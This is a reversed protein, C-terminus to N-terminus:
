KSSGAAIREMTTNLCTCVRALINGGAAYVAPQMAIGPMCRTGAALRTQRLTQNEEELRSIRDQLEQEKGLSEEAAGKVCRQVAEAICHAMARDLQREQCQAREPSPLMPIGQMAAGKRKASPLEKGLQQAGEAAGAAAEGDGASGGPVAVPQKGQLMDAHAQAQKKSRFTRGGPAHFIWESRGSPRVHKVRSWGQGLEPVPLPTDPTLTLHAAALAADSGIAPGGAPTGEPPGGIIDERPILTKKILQASDPDPSVLLPDLADAEALTLPLFGLSGLWMPLLSRVSQVVLRRVGLARLKSEVAQLLRKLNGERRYGERTAVFPMEAFAAGFIRVVAASVCIAGKRLVCVKVTSFNYQPEDDAADLPSDYCNCMMDILDMGNDMVLPDRGRRATASAVELTYNGDLASRKGLCASIGGNIQM